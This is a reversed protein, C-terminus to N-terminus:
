SDGEIGHGIENAKFETFKSFWISYKVVDELRVDLSNDYQAMAILVEAWFKNKLANTLAELSLASRHWIFKGKAIEQDFLRCWAHCGIIERQVWSIKLATTDLDINIM